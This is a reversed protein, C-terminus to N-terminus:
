IEPDDRLADLCVFLDRKQAFIIAVFYLAMTEALREQRL